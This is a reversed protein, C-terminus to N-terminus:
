DTTTLEAIATRTSSEDVIAKSNAYAALLCHLALNNVVRPHGRSNDHILSIADDSFLTDSRGAITLHHSIYSATEQHTMGELTYRVTIRQDLAALMGLKMKRRLTPQGVLIAALPSAADMDVNTLMRVLELQNHDLLHAEDVVLVPQRGREANEAVLADAAQPFLAANQFRPVGGLAVVLHHCIGRAGTTPNALYIIRHRAQDLAAVAARVAVTKGAGSEGAILGIGRQGICWSIRAVAQNHSAHHHLQGPALAKGFPARTFGYHSQLKDIM